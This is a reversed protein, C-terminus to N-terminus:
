PAGAAFPLQPAQGEHLGPHGALDQGPAPDHLGQFREQKRAVLHDHFAALLLRIEEGAGQGLHVGLLDVIEVDDDVGDGARVVDRQELFADGALQVEAEGAGLAEPDRLQHLVALHLDAGDVGVDLDGGPQEHIEDGVGHQHAGLHGVPLAIEVGPGVGLVRRGVDLRRAEPVAQHDHLDVLDDVLQRADVDGAAPHVHDDLRVPGEGLLGDLGAIGAVDLLQLDERGHHHDAADVLAVLHRGQVVAHAEIGRRHLQQQGGVARGQAQLALDAPVPDQVGLGGENRGDLAPPDFADVAEAVSMKKV